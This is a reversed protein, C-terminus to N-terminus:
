QHPGRVQSLILSINNITLFVCLPISPTIISVINLYLDCSVPPNQSSCDLKQAETKDQKYEPIVTSTDSM